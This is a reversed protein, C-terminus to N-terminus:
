SCPPLRVRDFWFSEVAQVLEVFSEHSDPKSLYANAHKEYSSIIDERATSSSLVLVPLQEMEPDGKIEELVDLGDKRPLNLDLLVFDPCPSGDDRLFDIAKIGDTAIHMRVDFETKRFAERTLRVDGPNDEVLLVDPITNDRVM